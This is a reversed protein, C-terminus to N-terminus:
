IAPLDPSTFSGVIEIFWGPLWDVDVGSADAAGVSFGDLTMFPPPIREKGLYEIVTGASQSSELSTGPGSESFIITLFPCYSIEIKSPPNPPEM